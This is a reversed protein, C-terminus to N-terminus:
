RSSADQAWDVIARIVSNEDTKHRLELFRAIDSAAIFPFAGSRPSEDYEGSEALSYFRVKGDEYRWIEPVGIRAYVPLRPISTSTVDVEIALDPPPDKGPRYQDNGRVERERGVYYSGDPQLGRDHSDTSLTTSGASQIPIELAFAVAEIMRGLLAKIWEHDKRPTMMELTWGDYTHRLYHESLADLLKRYAEPAVGRLVRRLELAGRDYTHRPHCDGVAELVQVYAAPSLGCIVVYQDDHLAQATMM